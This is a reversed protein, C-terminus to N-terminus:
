LTRLTHNPYPDTFVMLVRQIGNDKLTSNSDLTLLTDHWDGSQFWGRNWPNANNVKEPTDQALQFPKIHIHFPHVSVNILDFGVAEGVPASFQEHDAKKFSFQTGPPVKTDNAMGFFFDPGAINFTLNKAVEQGRLDVLDAWLVLRVRPTLWM